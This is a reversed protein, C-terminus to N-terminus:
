IREQCSTPKEPGSDRIQADIRSCFLVRASRYNGPCICTEPKHPLPTVLGGTVDRQLLLVFTRRALGFGFRSASHPARRSRTVSTRHLM